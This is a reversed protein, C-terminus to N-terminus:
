QAQELPLAEDQPWVPAAYSSYSPGTGAGGDAQGADRVLPCTFTIQTAQPGVIENALSDEFTCAVGTDLAASRECVRLVQPAEGGATRLDLSVSQQARCVADVDEITVEEFGCNRLPGVEGNDCPATVFSGTAPLFIERAAENNEDWGSTFDCRPRNIPTGDETTLGSPEWLQRGEADLLPRGECLFGEPNSSFGLEFMEGEPPIELDTIDIWQTALGAIYVDLWGAQIGQFRCSYDHTLPSFENNSLRDTSQVCFAQKSTTMQGANSLIFDGYHRYHVHDHCPAYKFISEGPDGAVADGVHLPEGGVNYVTADFQLLRRWGSDGVAGEQLACNGPAVYRYIIRNKELDDGVVQLDPADVATVPGTRVRDALEDDWALREFRLETEVAGVRVALLEFCNTRDFDYVSWANESDVSNPPFGRDNICARGTRQLLLDPDAPFLFYEEWVGGAEALAPEAEEVSAADSLLTTTFTYGIMVLDHGQITQRSPGDPDLAFSWLDRPPLPLQGKGPLNSDRFNLRLRTLSVQREARALWEEPPQELAATAVRDRMEPPFEDLLLGVRGPMTVRVLAGPVSPATAEASSPTPDPSSPADNAVPLTPSPSPAEGDSDPATSEPAIRTPTSARIAFTPTAAPTTVPTGTISGSSLQGCAGLFTGLTFLILGLRKM